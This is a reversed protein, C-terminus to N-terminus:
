SATPQYTPRQAVLLSGIKECPTRLKQPLISLAVLLRDLDELPLAGFLRLGLGYTLAGSAIAVGIGLWGSWMTVIGLAVAGCAMAALLIRLLDGIPARCHLRSALAWLSATLFAAHMTARGIAGGITGFLPILTFGSVVTLAAGFASIYMALRAEEFAQLFTTPVTSLTICASFAILLMASPVADVFYSGYLVPLLAPAIAALGFCGPLVVLALMRLSYRYTRQVAGAHDSGKRSALHPLLATCLFMPVCAMNALTLSVTFLGVSTSGWFFDLFIVELRTTMITALVQAILTYRAFSMVRQRLDDDVDLKGPRHMLIRSALYAPGAFAGLLAGGAGLLWTGVFVASLQAVMSALSILSLYTFRQRGKLYAAEFFALAQVLCFSASLLWFLPNARFNEATIAAFGNGAAYSYVAIAVLGLFLVVNVAVFISLLRWVLSRVREEDGAAEVEPVFRTLAAQIGLDSVAIAITAIAAAFSVVGTGEVGVLRAVIVTSLFGALNTAIAAISGVISNRALSRSPASNGHQESM